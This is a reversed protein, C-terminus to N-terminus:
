PASGAPTRQGNATLRRRTVSGARRVWHLLQGHSRGRREPTGRHGSYGAAGPGGGGMYSSGMAAVAANRCEGTVPTRWPEGTAAM